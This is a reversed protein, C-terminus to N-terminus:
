NLLFPVVLFLDFIGPVIECFKLGYFTFIDFSKKLFFLTIAYLDVFIM